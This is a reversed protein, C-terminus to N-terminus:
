LILVGFERNNISYYCRKVGRFRMIRQCRCCPRAIAFSGNALVRVVYVTAGRDLKRSLRAEAHALPEQLRTRINNAIVIAGDTRIGVAGIKYRRKKDGKLAVRKALILYKKSM